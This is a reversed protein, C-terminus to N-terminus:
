KKKQISQPKTKKKSSFLSLELGKEYVLKNQFDDYRISTNDDNWSRTHDGM